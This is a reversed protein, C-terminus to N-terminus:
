VMLPAACVGTVPTTAFPLPAALKLVGFRVAALLPWVKRIVLTVIVLVVGFQVADNVRSTVNLTFAVGVNDPAECLAGTQAPEPAVILKVPKSDPLVEVM